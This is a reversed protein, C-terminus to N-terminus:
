IKKGGEDFEFTNYLDKGKSGIFNLLVATKRGSSTKTDSIDAAKIFIELARRFIKWNEALNGEFKLESPRSYIEM